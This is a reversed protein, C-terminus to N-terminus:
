SATCGKAYAGKFDNQHIWFNAGFKEGATVPLAEHDTRSDKSHPEGALVSPWLIAKGTKPQFTVPSAGPSTGPIDRAVCAADTTGKVISSCNSDAPLKTFRTGGGEPVDNLYTFLTYIRVGQLKAGDGDIYDNHEKYFQKGDGHYYVLQAFEANTEPTRTVDAVRRVVSQVQPDNLCEPHNCWGHSSTRIETALDGMTGDEKMGVGLSKEYRGKGHRTFAAVEAPHLFNHFLIVPPDASIQEPQLEPFDTLARAFTANMEGAALADPYYAPRPCRRRYRRASLEM